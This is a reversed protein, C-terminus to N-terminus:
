KITLYKHQEQQWALHRATQWEEDNQLDINKLDELVDKAAAKILMSKVFDQLYTEVQKYGIAQIVSEDLEVKFEAM